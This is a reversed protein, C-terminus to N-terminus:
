LGDGGHGHGHEHEFDIVVVLVAESLVLVLNDSAHLTSVGRRRGARLKSLLTLTWGELEDITPLGGGSLPSSDRATWLAILGM